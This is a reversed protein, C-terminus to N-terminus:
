AGPPIIEFLNQAAAAGTGSAFFYYFWIGADDPVFDYYYTGSSLRQVAGTGGKYNYETVTENPARVRLFVETPDVLINTPIDRFITQVRVQAGKSYSNRTM